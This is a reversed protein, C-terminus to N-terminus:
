RSRPARFRKFAVPFKVPSNKTKRKKNKTKQLPPPLGKGGKGYGRDEWEVLFIQHTATKGTDQNIKGAARVGARGRAAELSFASIKNAPSVM